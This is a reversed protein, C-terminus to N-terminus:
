HLNIAAVRGERAFRALRAPHIDQGLEPPLALARVFELRDPIGDMGSVSKAQTWRRLWALRSQGLGPDNQLLNGM